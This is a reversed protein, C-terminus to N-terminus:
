DFGKLTDKTTSQPSTPSASPPPPSAPSPSAVPSEIPFLFPSEAPLNFSLSAASNSHNLTKRQPSRPSQGGVSRVSPANSFRSVRSTTVSPRATPVPRTKLSIVENLCADMKETLKEFRAELQETLFSIEQALSSSNKDIEMNQTMQLQLPTLLPNSEQFHGRFIFAFSTLCWLLKAFFYRCQM